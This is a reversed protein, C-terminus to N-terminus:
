SSDFRDLGWGGGVRLFNDISEFSDLCGFIGRVFCDYSDFISM